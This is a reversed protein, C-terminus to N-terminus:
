RNQCSLHNQNLFMLRVFISLDNQVHKYHSDKFRCKQKKRKRVEEREPM